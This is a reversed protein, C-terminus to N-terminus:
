EMRALRLANALQDLTAPSLEGAKEALSQQTLTVLWTCFIRDERPLGVRVVGGHTLGEWAGVDVEIAVGGVGPGASAIVQRMVGPDAAQEGSLVVFGHKEPATAPAVIQIARLELDEDGSLLVILCKEGVFAWWVDGRRM